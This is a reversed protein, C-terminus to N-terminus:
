GRAFQANRLDSDDEELDLPRRIPAGNDGSVLAEVLQAEDQQRKFHDALYLADLQDDPIQCIFPAIRFPARFRDSDTNSGECLIPWFERTL